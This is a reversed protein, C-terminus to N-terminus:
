LWGAPTRGRPPIARESATATRLIVGDHRFLVSADSIGIARPSSQKGRRNTQERTLTLVADRDILDDRRGLRVLAHDIV